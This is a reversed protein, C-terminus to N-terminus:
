QPYLQVIQGGDRLAKAVKKIKKNESFTINYSMINNKTNIFHYNLSGKGMEGKQSYFVQGSWYPKNEMDEYVFVTVCQPYKKHKGTPTFPTYEMVSFYYCNDRDPKVRINRKEIHLPITISCLHEAKEIVENLSMIDNRVMAYYEPPFFYIDNEPRPRIMREMDFRYQVPSTDITHVPAEGRINVYAISLIKLFVGGVVYEYDPLEITNGFLSRNAFLQMQYTQSRGPANEIVPYKDGYENILVKEVECIFDDKHRKLYPMNTFGAEKAYTVIEAASVPMKLSYKILSFLRFDIPNTHDTVDSVFDVAFDTTQKIVCIGWLANASYRQFSKNPYKERLKLIMKFAKETKGTLLQRELGYYFLFVYGVDHTGSFPAALFDLYGRRQKDSLEAYRPFYPPKEGQSSAAIPLNTYIASPEDESYALYIKAGNAIQFSKNIPRSSESSYNKYRGDAIYLLEFIEESIGSFFGRNINSTNDIRQPHSNTLPQYNFVPRSTDPATSPTGKIKEIIKTFISM